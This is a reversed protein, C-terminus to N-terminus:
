PSQPPSAWPCAAAVSIVDGDQFTGTKGESTTYKLNSAYVAHLTVKVSDTSFDISAPEASVYPLVKGKIYFVSVSNAKATGSEIKGNKIWSNAAM